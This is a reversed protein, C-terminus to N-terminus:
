SGPRPAGGGELRGDHARAWAVLLRAVRGYSQVGGPVQNARLYADNVRTTAEAAVRVETRRLYDAYDRIDRRVGPLRRDALRRALGPDSRALISVLTLQAMAHGAYAVRPDPSRTSALWGMFSAENEPAFGRQHAKEHAMDFPLLLAPEGADVVAEGTWPFFFGSIGVRTLFADPIFHKVRGRAPLLAADLGLLGVAARWGQELGRHLAAGDEEIRTPEGADESGHIRRYAANTALIEQRALAAIEATDAGTGTPLGLREGLPARAYDFGWLVYFLVLVVGADRAVRLGAGAAANRGGRRRRLVDAVGRGALGLYSVAGAALILEALPFPLWGTLRSLALPIWVGLRKGYVAEVLGPVHSLVHSLLFCAVGAALLLLARRPRLERDAPRAADGDAAGAADGAGAAKGGSADAKRDPSAAGAPPSAREGDPAGAAPDSM